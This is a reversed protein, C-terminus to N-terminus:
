RAAQEREGMIQHQVRVNNEILDMHELLGNQAVDDNQVGDEVLDLVLARQHVLFQELHQVIRIPPEVREHVFVVLVRVGLSRDALRGVIAVITGNAHRGSPVILMQRM